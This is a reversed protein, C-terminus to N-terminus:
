RASREKERAEALYHYVQWEEMELIVSITRTDQKLERFRRMIRHHRATMEATKVTPVDRAPTNLTHSIM